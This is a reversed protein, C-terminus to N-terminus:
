KNEESFSQLLATQMQQCCSKLGIHEKKMMLFLM